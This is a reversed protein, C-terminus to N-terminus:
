PLYCGSNSLLVTKTYTPYMYMYMYSIQLIPCSKRCMENTQMFNQGIRQWIHTPFTMNQYCSMYSTKLKSELATIGYDGMYTGMPAYIYSMIEAWMYLSKGSIYMQISATANVGQVKTCVVHASAWSHVSAQSTGYLELNEHCLFKTFHDFNAFNNIKTTFIEHSSCFKTLGRGNAYRTRM